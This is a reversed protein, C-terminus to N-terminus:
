IFTRFLGALLLRLVLEELGMLANFIVVVFFIM